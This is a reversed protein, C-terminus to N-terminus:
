PITNQQWKSTIYQKQDSDCSAWTNTPKHGMPCHRFRNFGIVLLWPPCTPVTFWGEASEIIGLLYSTSIEYNWEWIRLGIRRCGWEWTEWMRMGMDGVDENGHRMCGWGWTEWMRLEMDGVDETGHRGCGWDWTEWMRMGMDGVDEHRGCGWDWTEYMRLGM